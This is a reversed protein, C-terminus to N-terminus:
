TDDKESHSKKVGREEFPLEARCSQASQREIKDKRRLIVNILPNRVEAHAIYEATAVKYITRRTKQVAPRPRGHEFAETHSGQQKPASRFQDLAAVNSSGLGSGCWGARRGLGARGM